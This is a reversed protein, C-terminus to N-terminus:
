RRWALVGFLVLMASVAIGAGFGPGNAATITYPTFGTTTSHGDARDPSEFEPPSAPRTTETTTTSEVPSRTTTQPPRTTVAPTGSTGTVDVTAAVPAGAVRYPRDPGSRDFIRDTDVDVSASVHLVDAKVPQSFQVTLGDYTGAKLYRNGVIPGDPGGARVILFGNQSLNARQIRIRDKTDIRDPVTLSATLNPIRGEAKGVNQEGNKVVVLLPVGDPADVLDFSATFAPRERGTVRVTKTRQFVEAGTGTLEVRLETGPALTTHARVQQGPLPYLVPSNGSEGADFDVAVPFVLISANTVDGDFGFQLQYM